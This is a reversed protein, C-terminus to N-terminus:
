LCKNLSLMDMIIWNNEKSKNENMGKRKERQPARILALFCDPCTKCCTWVKHSIRTPSEMSRLAASNFKLHASQTQPTLHFHPSKLVRKWVFGFLINAQSGVCHDQFLCRGKVVLALLILHKKNQNRSLYFSQPFLSLFDPSLVHDCLCNSQLFFIRFKM